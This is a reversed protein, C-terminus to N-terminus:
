QRLIANMNKKYAEVGPQGYPNIGILRGEVVTALMLMQFLQGLTYEDLRPLRLDATPRGAERYAQNTGEIAARLIDALSKEALENLGDHNYDSKGLPAADRSGREVILNTIFKDRKGEQHQQGRSHLDRTNVVTLPLAGRQQKGLSEALLQDYWLGVAELRKGWTSLVRVDCGRLTELLHAVGVFQLVINEEPRKNRFHDNMAAAGALLQEVDLGMLAAPLLGVASLVSFRGGVGDPAEFVEQCGLATALDFLKGSKGTVPVVLKALEGADRGLSAQLDHLLVRFVAATELTGGSKSIVVIGWRDGRAQLLRELDLLADNDVNNGEFYIRPRGRRMTEPVENHYLHCCAELMARAGMYSGGIGLVVVDEVEGSLRDAAAKIRGVESRPGRSRYEALLRDPLEHFGADLPRKSPEIEVGDAWLQAEALVEDRVDDLAAAISKLDDPAIGHEPLFANRPDYSLFDAPM